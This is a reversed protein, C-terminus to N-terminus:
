TRPRPPENVLLWYMGLQSVAEAFGEFEVPKQVYSNVGLRYSEIVDRDESSSTLIVVPTSRTREDSKIRRLVELGDLKPLKLDLLVLQPGRGVTRGSHPGQAFLYEIAQAGDKAHWLRNAMNRSRLARITLEADGPDDEVLLIEMDALDRM